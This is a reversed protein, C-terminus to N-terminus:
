IAASVPPSSLSSPKVPSGHPFPVPAAGGAGKKKEIESIAMDLGAMEAELACRRAKLAAISQDYILGIDPANPTTFVVSKQQRRKPAVFRIGKCAEVHAEYRKGLKFYPKECKPCYGAANGRLIRLDSEEPMAIPVHSFRPGPAEQVPEAIAKTVPAWFSEGCPSCEYRQRDEERALPTVDARRCRPCIVGNATQNM